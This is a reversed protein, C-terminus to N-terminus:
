KEIFDLTEGFVRMMAVYNSEDASAFLEEIHSMPINRQKAYEILQAKFIGVWFYPHNVKQIWTGMCAHCLPCKFKIKIICKYCVCIHRCGNHRILETQEFCVCCCDERITRCICPMPDLHISCSIIDTQPNMVDIVKRRCDLRKGHLDFKWMDHAIKKHCAQRLLIYLDNITTQNTITLDYIADDVSDQFWLEKVRCHIIM